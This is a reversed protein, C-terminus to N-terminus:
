LLRLGFRQALATYRQHIEEPPKELRRAAEAIREPTIPSQPDIAEGWNFDRILLKRDERESCTQALGGLATCRVFEDSDQLSDMLARLCQAEGIKGLSYATAQKIRKDEGADQWCALLAAIKFRM